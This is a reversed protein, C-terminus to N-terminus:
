GNSTRYEGIVNGDVDYVNVTKDVPDPMNRAEELTTAPKGVAEEFYVWGERGNMAVAAFLDPYANPDSTLTQGLIGLTEGKSNLAYADVVDPWSQEFPAFNSDGTVNALSLQSSNGFGIALALASGLIAGSAVAIISWWITSQNTM